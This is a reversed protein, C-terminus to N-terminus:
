SKKLVVIVENNNQCTLEISFDFFAKLKTFMELIHEQSWVHFHMNLDDRDIRDQIFKQINKEDELKGFVIAYERLHDNKSTESGNKYDNLIHEFPTIKRNKDFTYKKDPISLFLIGEKKLVRLMNKIALMPNELHEIVHCAIIFDLSNNKITSLTHADDKIDISVYNEKKINPTELYHDENTFKDVYKIEVDNNFTLAGQRAGIELGFGKKIYLNAINKRSVTEFCSRSFSNYAKKILDFNDLDYKVKYSLSNQEKYLNLDNEIEEGLIGTELITLVILDPKLEKIEDFHYIPYKKIFTGKLNPNKDVFGIINLDTFDITDLLVKAFNGAGYLLTKINKQQNFDM